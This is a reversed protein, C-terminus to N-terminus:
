RCSSETSFGSSGTIDSIIRSSNIRVHFDYPQHLVRSYLSVSLDYGVRFVFKQSSWTLVIRVAASAVAAGCFIAALVGLPLASVDLGTARLMNTVQSYRPSGSGALMALLPVVAAITFLEAAGGVLMIGLVALIQWRRRASLFDLVIWRLGQVLTQPPADMLKLKERPAFPSTPVARASPHKGTLKENYIM